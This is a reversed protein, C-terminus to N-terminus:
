HNESESAIEKFQSIEYKYRKGQPRCINNKGGHIDTRGDTQRYHKEQAVIDKLVKRAFIVNKEVILM